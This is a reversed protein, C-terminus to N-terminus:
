TKPPAGATYYKLANAIGTRFDTAAVFGLKKQLTTDGARAFVGEPKDSTGTVEPKFGALEAALKAFDIFSTWKGTSLNVAGGDDIQDMTQLIGTVCDEIHIFDRLQLGSGWVSVKPQGRHALVRKCISPFPYTDDQDEGYGSFPRYCVSKLGHKQYALRALYECTLKAWGYTMDPMGIDLDFGIMNEKLLVYGERRQFKIPYAASSSFALTKKPHARVAWQWYEADISLDDAVALPNNEIMLRGGVMAALHFAYDFDTDGVRKFWARCDERHFHFGKCERPDFFPWKEPLLGGTLPAVPDVCHVEDGRQLLRGVIHRGVFGAGGTVLIKAV